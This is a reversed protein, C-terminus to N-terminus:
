SLRSEGCIIPNKWGALKMRVRDLLPQFMGKTVRSHFLPVGLYKGLNKTENIGIIKSIEKVVTSKVNQSYFFKSKDMNIKQGSIGCFEAMISRVIQGQLPTAEACLLLDDAFMIHTIMPGTRSTKM